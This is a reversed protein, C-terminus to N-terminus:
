YGLLGLVWCCLLGVVWFVLFLVVAGVVAVGAVYAVVSVNTQEFKVLRMSLGVVWCGLLGIVWCGLIGVVWCALGGWGARM